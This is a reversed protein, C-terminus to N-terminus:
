KSRPLEAKFDKLKSRAAEIQHQAVVEKETFEQIVADNIPGELHQKRVNVVQELKAGQSEVEIFL